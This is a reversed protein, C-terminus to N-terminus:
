WRAGYACRIQGWETWCSRLHRGGGPVVFPALLYEDGAHYAPQQVLYSPGQPVTIVGPPPAYAVVPPAAYGYYPAYPPPVYTPPPAVGYAPPPAYVDAAQTATAGFLALMCTLMLTRM